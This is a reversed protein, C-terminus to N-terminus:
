HVRMSGRCCVGGGSDEDSVGVIGGLVRMSCWRAMGGIGGGVTDAGNRGGGYGGWDVGSRKGLKEPFVRKLRIYRSGVM